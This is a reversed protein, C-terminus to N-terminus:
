LGRAMLIIYKGIMDLITNDLGVMANLDGIVIMCLIVKLFGRWFRMSKTM